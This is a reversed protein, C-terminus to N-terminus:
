DESEDAEVAIKKRKPIAVKAHEEERAHIRAKLKGLAAKTLGGHPHGIKPADKRPRGPGRKVPEIPPPTLVLEAPQAVAGAKAKRRRRKVPKSQAELRKAVQVVSRREDAALGAWTQALTFLQKLTM